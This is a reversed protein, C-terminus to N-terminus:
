VYSNCICSVFNFLFSFFVKPIKLMTLCCCKHIMCFTLLLGFLVVIFYYLYFNFYFPIVIQVDRLYLLEENYKIKNNKECFKKDETTSTNRRQHQSRSIRTECRMDDLESYMYLIKTTIITRGYLLM